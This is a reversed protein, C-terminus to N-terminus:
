SFIGFDTSKKLGSEDFRSVKEVCKEMNGCIEAQVRLFCMIYDIQTYTYWPKPRICVM